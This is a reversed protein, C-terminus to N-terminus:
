CCNGPGPGSAVLVGETQAMGGLAANLTPQLGFTHVSALALMVVVCLTVFFRLM